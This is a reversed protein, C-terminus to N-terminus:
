SRRNEKKNVKLLEMSGTDTIDDYKDVIFSNSLNSLDDKL